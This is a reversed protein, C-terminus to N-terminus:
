RDAAFASTVHILNGEGPVSDPTRPRYAASSSVTNPALDSAVSGSLQCSSDITTADISQQDSGSERLTPIYFPETGTVDPHKELYTRLTRGAGQTAYSFFDQWSIRSEQQVSRDCDPLSHRQIKEGKEACSASTAVVTSDRRESLCSYGPLEVKSGSEKCLGRLDRAGHTRRVRGQGPTMTSVIAGLVKPPRTTEFRSYREAGSDGHDGTGNSSSNSPAPRLSSPMKRNKKGQLLPNPIQHEGVEFSDDRVGVPGKSRVSTTMIDTQSVTRRNTSFHQFFREQGHSSIVEVNM